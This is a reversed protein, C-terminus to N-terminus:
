GPPVVVSVEGDHVAVTRPGRITYSARVRAVGAATWHHGRGTRLDAAQLM